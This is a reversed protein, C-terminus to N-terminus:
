KIFKETLINKWQLIKIFLLNMVSLLCLAFSCIIIVRPVLTVESFIMLFLPCLMLIFNIGCAILNTSVNVKHLFLLVLLIINVFSILIPLYFQWIWSFSQGIIYLILMYAGGILNLVFVSNRLRNAMTKPNKTCLSYIILFATLLGITVYHAWFSTELCINVITACVCANIILLVIVGFVSLIRKPKKQPKSKNVEETNVEAKVEEAPIDTAEVEVVNEKRFGCIACYGKENLPGACVPCTKM